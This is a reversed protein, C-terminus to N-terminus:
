DGSRALATAFMEPNTLPRCLLVTQRLRQYSSLQFRGNKLKVDTTLAPTQQPIVVKSSKFSIIYM